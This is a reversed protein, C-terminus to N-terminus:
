KITTSREKIWEEIAELSWAVSNQGIHIRGPFRKDKKEWRDVTSRSIGGLKQKLIPWRILQSSDEKM